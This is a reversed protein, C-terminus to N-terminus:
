WDEPPETPGDLPNGDRDHYGMLVGDKFEQWGDEDEDEIVTGPPLDDHNYDDDEDDYAPDDQDSDVYEHHRWGSCRGNWCGCGGPCEPCVMGVTWMCKACLLRNAPDTVVAEAQTYTEGTNDIYNRIETETQLAQTYPISEATARRRAARQLSRSTM